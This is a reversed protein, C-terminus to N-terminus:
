ALSLGRPRLRAVPGPRECDAARYAEAADAVAEAAEEFGSPEM